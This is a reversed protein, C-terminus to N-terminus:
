GFPNGGTGMPWGIEHDFGWQSLTRPAMQPTCVPTVARHLGSPKGQYARGSM